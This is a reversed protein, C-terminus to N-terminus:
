VVAKPFYFPDVDVHVKGVVLVITPYAKPLRQMQKKVEQGKAVAAEETDWLMAKALRTDWGGTSTRYEVTENLVRFLSFRDHKVISNYGM